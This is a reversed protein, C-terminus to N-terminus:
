IHARQVYIVHATQTDSHKGGINGHERFHLDAGSAHVLWNNRALEQEPFLFEFASRLIPERM